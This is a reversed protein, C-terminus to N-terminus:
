KVLAMFQALTCPELGCGKVAVPTGNYQVKVIFNRNGTDFLLFNLRSAYPAAKDLPAGLASMQGLLTSDHASFLVYKLGSKDDAADHLYHAVRQLLTLGTRRGVEESRFAALFAWNGTEIIEDVDQTSLGDPPPVNYLKRILLIDALPKVHYLETITVGTAKGWREFKPQVEALKQQWQPTPVAYKVRLEEFKYLPGDPYLLTEDHAAVTHIPIPQAFGPLAPKGDVSPGTGHPYLGMLVCQASMLTRDIDTSYVYMTGSVYNPPLLHYHEVYEERFKAGLEYEQRMGKPTLQGFPQPWQYSSKSLDSIPMRDGHRIIDVAFILKEEAFANCSFMLLILLTIFNLM